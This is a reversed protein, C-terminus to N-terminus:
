RSTAATIKQVRFRRKGEEDAGPWAKHGRWDRKDLSAQSCFASRTGKDFQILQNL